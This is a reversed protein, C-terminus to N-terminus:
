GGCAAGAREPALAMAAACATVPKAERASLARGIRAPGAAPSLERLLAALGAVHAAAISSGSYFDYAGGPAASLIDRGPAGLAEAGGTGAAVALVGEASAPFRPAPGEGTAAVVVMGRSLAAAVLEALLDDHPGGLSLNLVAVERAIAFNLARALSFSSCTGPGGPRREWCARLAYLEAEPAVGLLGQGSRGGAAIVGAVATGHREPPPEPADVAGVFDRAMAIRGALDPHAGDPWTDVVGVRVGRGTVIGHLRGAELAALGDQLARLDRPAGRALTEFAAMPQVTRVRADRALAAVAADRDGGTVRFVFCHVQISALPWEAVLRIPHAAALAAAVQALAEPEDLPVTVILHRADAVETAAPLLWPPQAPAPPATADACGVLLGLALGALLRPARM